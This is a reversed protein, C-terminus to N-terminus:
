REQNVDSPLAPRVALAVRLSLDEPDIADLM